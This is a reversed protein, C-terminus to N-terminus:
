DTKNFFDTIKCQTFRRAVFSENLYMEVNAFNDLINQPAQKQQLFNRIGSIAKEAEIMTFLPNHVNDNFSVDEDDSQEEQEETQSLAVIEEDTLIETSILDEDVQVYEDFNIDLADPINEDFAVDMENQTKYKKMWETLPLEDDDDFETNSNFGGHRFGNAITKESVRQWAMHIYNVADLPSVSFKEEGSDISAIMKSLLIRRYHSKLSHIVGQDMPQLKSSTNAPMFVLKIFELGQVDPHAPCNDVLLLIRRKHKRLEDNWDHLEQRFIESTMWAKRNSTYKVPLTRNKFCRPNRSNGIVLLKRKERGTFNAAVLVTIRQKPLKGGVCKEGKFKLTKDPTLKFFLGTEDANYIDNDQYNERIKPWKENLWQQVTEMDVSASEGAIKGSCIGHRKKFREIWSRSCNFEKNEIKSGLDSAKEQLIAGSVTVNDLRKQSFWKLLGRDLEEHHSKRLKKATCNDREYVALIKVREKWITGVTSKSLGMQLCIESQKTGNQLKQIIEYKEEITFAKRKRPTKDM